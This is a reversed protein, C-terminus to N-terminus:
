ATLRAVVKEAIQTAMLAAPLSIIFAMAYVSAGM